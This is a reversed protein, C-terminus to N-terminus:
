RVCVDCVRFFYHDCMLIAPASLRRLTTAPEHHFDSKLCFTRFTSVCPNPM